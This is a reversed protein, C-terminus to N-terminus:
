PVNIRGHAGADPRQARVPTPPLVKVEATVGADSKSSPRDSADSRANVYSIIMAVGAVALMADLALVVLLRVLRAGRAAPMEFL